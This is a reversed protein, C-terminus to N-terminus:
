KTKNEHSNVAAFDLMLYVQLKYIIIFLDTYLTRIFYWTFVMWHISFLIFCNLTFGATLSVPYVFHPTFFYGLRVSFCNENFLFVRWVIRTQEVANVHVLIIFLCKVEGSSQTQFIVLVTSCLCNMQSTTDERGERFFDFGMKTEVFMVFVSFFLNFSLLFTYM